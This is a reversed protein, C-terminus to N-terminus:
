MFSQVLYKPFLRRSTPKKHVLVEGLRYFIRNISIDIVACPPAMRAMRLTRPAGGRFSGVPPQKPM